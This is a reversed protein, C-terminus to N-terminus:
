SLVRNLTVPFIIGGFAVGSIIVGVVWARWKVFYQGVTLIVLIFIMDCALGGLVGQALIFQYYEKYLSTIM